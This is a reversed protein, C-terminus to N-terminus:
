SWDTHPNTRYGLESKETDSKIRMHPCHKHEPFFIRSTLGLQGCWLVFSSILGVIWRRWFKGEEVVGFEEQVKHVVPAEQVEDAELVALNAQVVM